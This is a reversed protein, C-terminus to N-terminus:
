APEQSRYQRCALGAKWAPQFELLAREEQPDDVPGRWIAGPSRLPVHCSHERKTDASCPLGALGM